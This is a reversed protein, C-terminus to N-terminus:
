WLRYNGPAMDPPFVYLTTGLIAYCRDLMRNRNAWNCRPLEEYGTGGGGIQWEVGRLKYFTTAGIGGAGIAISGSTMTFTTSTTFYDAGDNAVLLDYLEQWAANIKYVLEADTVFNSGVMDAMQRVRTQLVTLTTTAM